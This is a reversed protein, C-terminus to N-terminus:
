QAVEQQLEAIRRKSSEIQSYLSEQGRLRMYKQALRGGSEKWYRVIGPTAVLVLLCGFRFNALSETGDSYERLFLEFTIIALGILLIPLRLISSKKLKLLRNELTQLCMQEAQIERDYDYIKRQAKATKEVPKSDMPIYDVIGSKGGLSGYLVIAIGILIAGVYCWEKWVSFRMERVQYNPILKQMNEGQFIDVKKYWERYGIVGGCVEGEFYVGETEPHEAVGRPFKGLADLKDQDGIGILIYKGGVIPVTYVAYRTRDHNRTMYYSVAENENNVVYSTIYGKVYPKGACMEETLQELPVAKRAKEEMCIGKIFCGVALIPLLIILILRKSFYIRTTYKM